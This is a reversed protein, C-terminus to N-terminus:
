FVKQRLCMNQALCVSLNRELTLTINIKQKLKGKGLHNSVSNGKKKNSVEIEASTQHNSKSSIEGSNANSQRPKPDNEGSAVKGDDTECSRELTTASTFTRKTPICNKDISGTFLSKIKSLAINTKTKKQNTALTMVEKVTNSTKKTQKTLKAYNSLKATNAALWKINQLKLKECSKNFPIAKKIKTIISTPQKNRNINTDAATAIIVSTAIRGPADLIDRALAAKSSM